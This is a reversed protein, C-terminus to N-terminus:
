RSQAWKMAATIREVLEAEMSARLQGDLPALCERAKAQWEAQERQAQAAIRKRAAEDARVKARRVDEPNQLKNSEMLGRAVRPIERIDFAIIPHGNDDKIPRTQTSKDAAVTVVQYLRYQSGRPGLSEYSAFGWPEGNVHILRDGRWRAPALTIEAKKAMAERLKEALM